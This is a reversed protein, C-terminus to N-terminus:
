DRAQKKLLNLQHQLNEISKKHDDLTKQHKDELRKITKQQEKVVTTLVAIFDMGALGKRDKMAVIDPVDEAIFGLHEEGRNQKYNYRVPEMQELAEQAEEVSLGSINEKLHRSSGNVWNGDYYGGGQLMDIYNGSANLQMIDTLNVRFKVPHDSRTGAIGFGGTSSFEMTAGDTRTAVVQAGTGTREVEFSYDPSATGVGVDGDTDIFLSSTPADPRIRFPLTSGNTVDRVFFNTENGAVDWTQPAFGSSGDQELRLTPTDGDKVHIDVSPTSTRIGLRGGDDVYLSHSPAGAELSFVRRGATADEVGFYSAGGNASDNIIIRWDNRAYSAAVSTDDFHIRLNNEKLRFTDFGFSEGNVCDFGVCMSGDVILDDLIVHDNVKQPEPSTGPTVIMGNLVMFTGSQVMPGPPISHRTKRETMSNGALEIDKRIRPTINPIVQLEYRYNGDAIAAGTEGLSFFPAAGGTFTKQIVLDNPGTVRLTLAQHDVKPLFSLNNSNFVVDAVPNKGAPQGEATLHTSMLSCFAFVAMVALVASSLTNKKFSM